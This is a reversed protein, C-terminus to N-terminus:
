EQIERIKKLDDDNELEKLENNLQNIYVESAEIFLSDKKEDITEDITLKIKIPSKKLKTSLELFVKKIEESDDDELNLVPTIDNFKIVIQDKENKILLAEIENQM